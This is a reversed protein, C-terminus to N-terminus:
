ARPSTSVPVTTSFYLEAGTVAHLRTHAPVGSPVALDPKQSRVERAMYSCVAAVRTSVGIVHHPIVVSIEVRPVADPRVSFREGEERLIKCTSIKGNDCHRGLIAEVTGHWGM